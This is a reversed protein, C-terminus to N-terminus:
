GEHLFLRGQEVGWIPPQFIGFHLMGSWRSRLMKSATVKTESSSLQLVLRVKVPSRLLFKFLMHYARHRATTTPNGLGLMGRMFKLHVAEVLDRAMHGLMAQLYTM